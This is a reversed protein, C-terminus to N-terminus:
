KSILRAVCEHFDASARSSAALNEISFHLPVIVDQNEKERSYAIKMDMASLKDLITISNENFFFQFSCQKFIGHKDEANALSQEEFIPFAYAVSFKRFEEEQEVWDYGCVKFSVTFAKGRPESASVNGILAITAGPRYFDDRGVVKYVLECGSLLGHTTDEKFYFEVVNSIEQVDADCPFIANMAVFIYILAKAICSASNRPVDLLTPM